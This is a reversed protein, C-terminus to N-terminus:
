MMEGSWIYDSKMFEAQQSQELWNKAGFLKM